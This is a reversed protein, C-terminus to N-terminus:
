QRGLRLLRPRPQSLRHQHQLLQRQEPGRQHGRQGACTRTFASTITRPCTGTLAHPGTGPAPAPEPTPAPAPADAAALVTAPVFCEKAIGPAPDGIVSNANSCNFPGDVAEILYRGSAGYALASKGSFNCTTASWEGACKVYGAPLANLIVGTDVPAPAGSSSGDDAATSPSGVGGGCASILACAAMLECLVTMRATGVNRQMTNM